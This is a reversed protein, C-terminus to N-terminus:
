EMRVPSLTIDAFFGAIRSNEVNICSGVAIKREILILARCEVILLSSRGRDGNTPVVLRIRQRNTLAAAIEVPHQTVAGEAHHQYIISM